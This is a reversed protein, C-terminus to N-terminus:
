LRRKVEEEFEKIIKEEIPSIHARGPTRGGDRNAHGHELLHPLGPVDANYVVATTSLRGKTSKSRWGKAYRQKGSPSGFNLRSEERLAKVAKSAVKPVIEATTSQVDEGYENLIEAIAESLGDIGVRKAM